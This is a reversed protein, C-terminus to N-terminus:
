KNWAKIGQGAWVSGQGEKGAKAKGTKKTTQKGDSQKLNNLIDIEPSLSLLTCPYWLTYPAKEQSCQGGGESEKTAIGHDGTM